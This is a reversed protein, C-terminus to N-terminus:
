YGAHRWVIDGHFFYLDGIKHYKEHYTIDLEKLGLLKGFKLVDLSALDKAKKWLYKRLRAEHNGEIYMIGANPLAERLDYLFNYSDNLEDQLDTKRAPDKDFKSISYFDVIDGNLVLTDPQERRLFNMFMKCVKKDRFQGHFDNAVVSRKTQM